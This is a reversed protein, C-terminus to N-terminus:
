DKIQERQQHLVTHQMTFHMLITKIQIENSNCCIVVPDCVGGDVNASTNFATSVCYFTGGKRNFAATINSYFTSGSTGNIFQFCNAKM